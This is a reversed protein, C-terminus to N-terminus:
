DLAWTRWSGSLKSGSERDGDQSPGNTKKRTGINMKEGGGWMVSFGGQGDGM